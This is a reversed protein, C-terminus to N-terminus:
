RRTIMVCLADDAIGDPMAELETLIPSLAKYMSTQANGKAITLAHETLMKDLSTECLIKQAAYMLGDSYCGLSDGQLMAVTNNLYALDPNVGLPLRRAQLELGREQRSQIFLARPYGAVSYTLRQQTVDIICAMAKVFEGAGIAPMLYANCATLWAAPDAISAFYEYFHDLVEQLRMLSAVGKSSVDVCCVGVQTPSVAVVAWGDGGPITAPQVVESLSISYKDEIEAVYSAKPMIRMQMQRALAVDVQLALVAGHLHELLLSREVHVRVRALLEKTNVPKAVFDDAGLDFIRLRNEEDDAGTQVLIPTNKFQGHERLAKACAFGDMEPMVLDLIIVHPHYLQALKLAEVGNSAIHVDRAGAKKLTVSLYQQYLLDDDVVLIRAHAPLISEQLFQSHPKRAQWVKYAGQICATIDMM